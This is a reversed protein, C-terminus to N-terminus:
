NKQREKLSKWSIKLFTRQSYPRPDFDSFLDSYDDLWLSVEHKALTETVSIKGFEFTDM